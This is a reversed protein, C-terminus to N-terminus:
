EFRAIGEKKVFETGRESMLRLGRRVSILGVRRKLLRCADLVPIQVAAGDSRWWVHCARVGARRLRGPVAPGGLARSSLRQRLPLRPLRGPGATIGAAM